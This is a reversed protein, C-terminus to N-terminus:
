YLFMNVPDIHYLYNYGPRRAPHALSYGMHDVAVGFQFIRGGKLGFTIWGDSFVGSQQRETRFVADDNAFPELRYDVLAIHDDIEGEVLRGHVKGPQRGSM